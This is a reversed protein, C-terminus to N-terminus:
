EMQEPGKNGKSVLGRGKKRKELSWKGQKAVGFIGVKRVRVEYRLLFM